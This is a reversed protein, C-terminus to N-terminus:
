NTVASTASGHDVVLRERLLDQTVHARGHFLQRPASGLYDRRPLDRARARRCSVRDLRSRASGHQDPAVSRHRHAAGLGSRAVSRRRGARTRAHRAAARDHARSAGPAPAAPAGRDPALPRGRRARPSRSAGRPPVVAVRRCPAVLVRASRARRSHPPRRVPRAAGAPSLDVAVGCGHRWHYPSPGGAVFTVPPLLLPRTERAEGYNTRTSRRCRSWGRRRPRRRSSLGEECVVEGSVAELKNTAAQAGSPIRRMYVLNEPGPASRRRGAPRWRSVRWVFSVQAGIRREQPPRSEPKSGAYPRCCGSISPSLRPESDLPSPICVRLNTTATAKAEIPERPALGAPAAFGAQAISLARVCVSYM